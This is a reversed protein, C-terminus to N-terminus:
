STTAATPSPGPAAAEAIVIKWGKEKLGAWTMTERYLVKGTADRAEFTAQSFEILGLTKKEMPRLSAELQGDVLITIAADTRNDYTVSHGPDCATFFVTLVLILLALLSAPFM